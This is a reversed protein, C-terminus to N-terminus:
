HEVVRFFEQSLISERSIQNQAGSGAVLRVDTWTHLNSSSQLMYSAGIATNFVLSVGTTSTRKIHLSANLGKIEAATLPRNYIRLDDIKGKFYAGTQNGDASRGVQLRHHHGTNASGSFSGSAVLVGDVWLEKRKRVADAVGAIHFWRSTDRTGFPYGVGSNDKTPYLLAPPENVSLSNFHAAFDFGATADGEFFIAQVFGPSPATIWVSFSGSAFDPLPRAMEIYTSTGNFSYAANPTGFRDTTLAAGHVLGDNRNVTKDTADGDFPYAAVLGSDLTLPQLGHLLIEYWAPGGALVDDFEVVLTYGNTLVPQQLIRAVGRVEVAELEVNASLSLATALPHSPGAATSSGDSYSPYWAYGNVFTPYNNGGHQGPKAYELHEWRISDSSVVLQDRGDIYARVRLTTIDDGVSVRVFLTVFAILTHFPSSRALLVV